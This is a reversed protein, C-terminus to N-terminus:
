GKQRERRKLEAAVAQRVLDARTEPPILVAAIRAATGIPYRDLWTEFENKPRAM